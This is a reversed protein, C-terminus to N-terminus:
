PIGLFFIVYDVKAKRGSARFPDLSHSFALRFLTPAIISEAIATAHIM